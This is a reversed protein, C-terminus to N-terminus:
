KVVCLSVFFSDFIDLFDKSLIWDILVLIEFVFYEMANLEHCKYADTIRFRNSKLKWRDANLRKVSLHTSNYESLVFFNKLNLLVNRKAEDVHSVILKLVFLASTSSEVVERGITYRRFYIKIDISIFSRCDTRIRFELADTLIQKDM